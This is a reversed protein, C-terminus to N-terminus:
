LSTLRSVSPSMDKKPQIMLLNYSVNLYLRYLNTSIKPLLTLLQNFMSPFHTSTQPSKTYFMNSLATPCLSPAGGPLSPLYRVMVLYISLERWLVMRDLNILRALRWTIKEGNQM